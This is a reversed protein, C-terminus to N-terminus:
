YHHNKPWLTGIKQRLLSLKQYKEEFEVDPFFDDNKQTLFRTQSLFQLL